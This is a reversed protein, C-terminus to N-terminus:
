VKVTVLLPPAAELPVIVITSTNGLPSLMASPATVNPPACDAFQAQVAELLTMVQVLLVAIAALPVLTNLKGTFTLELALPVKTFLACTPPPPSGVLELVGVLVVAPCHVPVSVTFSPQATSLSV